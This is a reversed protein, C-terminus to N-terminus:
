SSKDRKTQNAPLKLTGAVHALLFCWFPCQHLQLSNVSQGCVLTETSSISRPDRIDAEVPRVAANQPLPSHRCHAPLLLASAVAAALLERKLRQM